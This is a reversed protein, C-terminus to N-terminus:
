AEEIGFKKMLRYVTSRTIGLKSATKNINGDCIKYAHEVAIHKLDELPVIEDPTQAQRIYDTPQSDGNLDVTSGKEGGSPSPSMRLVPADKLMLDAPIIEPTDSILLSREITNKLQRVNGPWSYRLVYRRAEASLPRDEIDAHDKLYASRFYEALLLVDQDRERLPPLTVPFQFLRYYLDERFTGEHVMAVIDRNTACLVRVNVKITENGGVRQLDQSQLVRLLKAQLSLDLEGIEDLFITGGSAQEFKGIKRAHAGTFSGKEHGFFESEMLEHPIAACNVLVFPERRRDSNYHIAQAVLEKGTGSEGMIAVTLNGRLTKKIIRFVDAMSGSEGIIGRLGKAAPLQERLTAIERSLRSREAIHDVISDLKVSDDHGKTVYDYAGLKMADLAVSVVSQASVMVVPIEANMEKIQRLTELGGQGPMVVDLLILDPEMDLREVADEGSEFVHIDPAGKKRLQYQLLEAYDPDDDVIFFSLTM